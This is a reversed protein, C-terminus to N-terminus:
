TLLLTLDGKCSQKVKNLEETIMASMASRVSNVKQNIKVVFEHLSWVAAAPAQLQQVAVQLSQIDVQM